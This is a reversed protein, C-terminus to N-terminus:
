PTFGLVKDGSQCAALIGRVESPGCTWGSVKQQQGTAIKPSYETGIKKATECDVDGALVLVRLAGDPGAVSGCTKSTSSTSASQAGSTAETTRSQPSPGAVVPVSTSPTTVSPAASSDQAGSQQEDGCAALSVTALAAMGGVALSRASWRTLTPHSM